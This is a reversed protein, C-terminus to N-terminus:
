PFAKNRAREQLGGRFADHMGRRFEMAGCTTCHIKTCLNRRVSEILYAHLWNTTMSTIRPYLFKLGNKGKHFVTSGSRSSTWRRWAHAAQCLGGTRM